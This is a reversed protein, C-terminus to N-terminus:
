GATCSPRPSSARCGSVIFVHPLTFVNQDRGHDIHYGVDWYMGLVAIQLAVGATLMPVIFRAPM